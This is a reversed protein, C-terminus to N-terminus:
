QDTPPEPAYAVAIGDLLWKLAQEFRPATYGCGLAAIARLRPYEKEATQADEASQARNLVQADLVQVSFVPQATPVGPRNQADAAPPRRRDFDERDGLERLTCGVM